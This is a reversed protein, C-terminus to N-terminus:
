KADANDIIVQCTLVSGAREAAEAEKVWAERDIVAGERQLVRVGREIIKEVM